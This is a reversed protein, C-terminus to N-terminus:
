DYYGGARQQAGSGEAAADATVREGFGFPWKPGPEAFCWLHYQNATDVLRSEAPYMEVAECEPGVLENKIQQFHRWDKATGRDQRRISLWVMPPWGEQVKITQRIVVYLDNGFWDGRLDQNIGKDVDAPDLGKEAAWRKLADVQEASQPKPQFPVLPKM